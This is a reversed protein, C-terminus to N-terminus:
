YSQFPSSTLCHMLIMMMILSPMAATRAEDEQQASTTIGFEGGGRGARACEESRMDSMSSNSMSTRVTAITLLHVENYYFYAPTCCCVVCQLLM